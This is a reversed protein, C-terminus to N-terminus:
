VTRQIQLSGVHGRTPAPSLIQAERKGTLTPEASGHGPVTKPAATGDCALTLLHASSKFLNKVLSSACIACLCIFLEWWWWSTCISVVTLSKMTGIVNSLIGLQVVADQRAQPAAPVRRGQPCSQLLTPGEWAGETLAGAWTACGAYRYWNTELKVFIFM